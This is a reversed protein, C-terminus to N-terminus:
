KDNNELKKRNYLNRCRLNEKEKNKQYYRRRRALHEEKHLAIYNKNKETIHEKNELYYNLYYEKQTKIGLESTYYEKNRLKIKERNNNRYKAERYLKALKREEETYHMRKGLGGITCNYGNNFSDLEKIYKIELNDLEEQSLNYFDLIEKNFNDWGYKEIARYLKIQAVKGGNKYSNFRKKLSTTQGVYKKGSPSTLIYIYGKDIFKM